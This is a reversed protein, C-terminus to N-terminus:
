LRPTEEYTGWVGQLTKSIEGITAEARCADM